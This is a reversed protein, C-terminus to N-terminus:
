DAIDLEDDDIGELVSVGMAEPGLLSAVLPEYITVPYHIQSLSLALRDQLMRTRDTIRTTSQLIGIRELHTFEAVFEVMKDIAQSHTRVKEMVIMKGDEITLLPKINLMRGLIAQTEGILGSLQIYDLSDVYYVSYLRPIVSRSVHVIDDLNAGDSAAKAVEEVLYGLGLSTSQSDLVAIECRGLLGSRASQAALFTDTLGQSHVLVCIQDTSRSLEQFVREFASVEPPSVFLRDGNQRLRQFVEDIRIDVGDLFYRGGFSLNVPVVTIDHDDVFSPDVFRATSDTVVRVKRALVEEM